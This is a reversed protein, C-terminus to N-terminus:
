GAACSSPGRFLTTWVRCWAVNDMPPAPANVPTQQAEPPAGCATADDSLRAGRLGPGTAVLAYPQGGTDDAPWPVSFGHVEVVYARGPSRVVRREVNDLRNPPAGDDPADAAATVRLDLDNVLRSGATFLLAPPDHWALTVRLEEPATQLSSAFAAAPSPALLLCFRHTDGSALSYHDVVFLRTAAPAGAFADADDHTSLDVYDFGDGAARSSSGPARLPLARQGLHLRGFGQRVSPPPELPLGADTYGTMAVAGNILTAKVLAGSPAFADEPRRAGSPYFGDVYYQRVLAAAGAVLPAAMSTGASFGTKCSAAGDHAAAASRTEGSAVIDPKIRGDRTPGFSSFSAVTDERARSTRAAKLQVTARGGPAAALLARLRLGEAHPLTAALIRLSAPPAPLQFYGAHTDNNYIVVGEAGAAQAVALKTADDCGGRALLLVAGRRSSGSVPACGDAPEAAVLEWRRGAPARGLPTDAFARGAALFLRASAGAVALPATVLLECAHVDLAAADAPHPAGGDGGLTAGVALANKSTAPNAVHAAGAVGGFNGAAFVPLFDRRRWCFDDVERALTDYTSLDGGWSDSHVRAGRDYAFAFFDSLSTPLYLRGSDGKGLDTFVLRAGPAMGDWRAGAPTSVGGNNMCAGALSGATHTGHNNGDVADAYGSHYAVVKRHEPGPPVASGNAGVDAFYCSRMDIGSDGIGILQGNGRLGANWVPRAAAAVAAGAPAAGDSQTLAAAYFNRVSMRATPEIWHTWPQSALMTLVADATTGDLEIRLKGHVSSDGPLSTDPEHSRGAAVVAGHAGLLATAAARIADIRLGSASVTLLEVSRKNGEAGNSSGADEKLEPALCWAPDFARVHLVCPLEALHTVTTANGLVFFSADHVYGSAVAGTRSLAALFLARRPADVPPALTVLLRSAGVCAGSWWADDDAHRAARVGLPLAAIRVTPRLTAHRLLILPGAAHEARRHLAAPFGARWAAICSATALVLLVAVAARAARGAPQM